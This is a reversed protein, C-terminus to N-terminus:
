HRQLHHSREEVSEFKIMNSTFFWVSRSKVIIQRKMMRSSSCVLLLVSLCFSVSVYPCSLFCASLSTRCFQHGLVLCSHDMIFLFQQILRQNTSNNRSGFIWDSLSICRTLKSHGGGGQISLRIFGLYTSRKIGNTKRENSNTCCTCSILATRFAM